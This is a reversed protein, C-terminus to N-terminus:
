LVVRPPREVHTQHVFYDGDIRELLGADGPRSLDQLAARDRDAAQLRRQVRITVPLRAELFKRAVRRHQEVHALLSLLTAVRVEFLSRGIEGSERPKRLSM